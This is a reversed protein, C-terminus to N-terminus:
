GFVCVINNHGMMRQLTFIDVGKKVMETAFTHRLVYPTCKSDIRAEEKYKRFNNFIDQQKMTKDGATSLFLYQQRQEIAIDKLEQLYDLTTRSLPLIRETRTKSVKARVILYGDNFNIDHITTQLLEGIRIGCDLICLTITLDRFRAYTTNGIANILKKVEIKSLPKLRDEPVKVLKLHNNFNNKIYENKLLWNIYAKLPRLRVNVTCPAYKKEYIM